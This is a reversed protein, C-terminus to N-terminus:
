DWELNIVEAAVSGFIEVDGRAFVDEIANIIADESVPPKETDLQITITIM